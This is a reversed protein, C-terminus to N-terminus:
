VKQQKFKGVKLCTNVKDRYERNAFYQFFIEGEVEIDIQLEKKKHDSNETAQACCGLIQKHLELRRERKIELYGLEDTCFALIDM